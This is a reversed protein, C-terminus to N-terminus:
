RKYVAFRRPILIEPKGSVLSPVAPATTSRYAWEAGILGNARHAEIFACEELPGIEMGFAGLGSVVQGAKPLRYSAPLRNEDATNEGPGHNALLSRWTLAYADRQNCSPCIYDNVAVENSGGSILETDLELDWVGSSGSVATVKASVFELDDTSWWMIQTEGAIPSVTTQASVRIETTSTKVTVYVHGNDAAVLPPWPADNDWGTGDGGNNESEPIEINLTANVTVDAAAQVKFDRKSFVKGNLYSTIDSVYASADRTFADNTPDAAIVPVVKFSSPGGLDPYVFAYQIAASAELCWEVIQAWNEGRPANKLRNLIRDRLRSETEDDLGGTFATTVTAETLVNLPPNIFTVKDGVNLNTEAGVDISAAPVIGGDSVTTNATVQGQLSNAMLFQTGSPITTSGAGVYGVSLQGSSRSANVEPMGLEKRIEHLEDLDAELVRRAADRQALNSYGILLANSSATARIYHDTGPQIPADEIGADIAGLEIDDLIQQRIEGSNGPTYVKGVELVM